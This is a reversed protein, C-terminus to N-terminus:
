CTGTRVTEPRKSFPRECKTVCRPECSPRLLKKSRSLIWLAMSSKWAAIQEKGAAEGVKLREFPTAPADGSDAFCNILQKKESELHLMQQRQSSVDHTAVKQPINPTIAPTPGIVTAGAARFLVTPWASEEWLDDVLM